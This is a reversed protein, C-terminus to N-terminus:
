VTFYVRVFNKGQNFSKLKPLAKRTVSKTGNEKDRGTQGRESEGRVAFRHVNEDM